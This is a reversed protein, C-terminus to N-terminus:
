EVGRVEGEWAEVMGENGEWKGKRVKDERLKGVRTEGAWVEGGEGM